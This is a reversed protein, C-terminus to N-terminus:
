FINRGKMDSPPEIGFIKLITPALDYLAPFAKKIKRNTILTAPVVEPAMCHDGSWWSMNDQFIEKTVDGLASEDSMRYGRNFGLIIDPGRSVYPGDFFEQTIFVDYFVREGTEPDRLQLLKERIEHLLKFYDEKNVIGQAERGKLNIYLGNIGLAYAKTEEWIADELISVTGEEPDLNLKLYGNRYLWTNINVKRRYPAFGHDSMIILTTNEDVAELAKGVIKDFEIYVKELPDGFKEAAERQYFPHKKDRICWFIHSGQDLSSFYFFLLGRDLKKFRELEYAFIRKSEELVSQHQRIFNEIKFTGNTLAKTDEPIGLTYFYGNHEVLEKGYSSPTCVPVSPAAPNINLPTVYLRFPDGASLLYFRAITHLKQLYPIVDFDITVWDSLQGERLLIEQGQIDIRVTKNMKDLYVTCPVTLIEEDTRLPHEPGEIFLEIKGDEQVDAYYVHASSLEKQAEEIDSTYISYIGYTGFIDPTGMGSFTRQETPVPPYNSPIKYITAPIHNEELIKWFAKGERLLEIKGSKLPIKWKGLKLTWRPDPPTTKTVSFVPMYTKPDRHIFDFIGHGGPDKGTIFNSWAVPSQAPHSSLMKKFDGQKILNEINPLKGESILKETIFPDMGDFGLILVKPGKKESGATLFLLAITLFAISVTLAIFFKKRM